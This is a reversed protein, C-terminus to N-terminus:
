PSPSQPWWTPATHFSFLSIIRFPSIDTGLLLVLFVAILILLYVLPRTNLSLFKTLIREYIYNKFSIKM